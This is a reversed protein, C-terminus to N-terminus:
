TILSPVLNSRFRVIRYHDEHHRQQKPWELFKLSSASSSDAVSNYLPKFMSVLRRGGGQIQGSAFKVINQRGPPPSYHVLKDFKLM